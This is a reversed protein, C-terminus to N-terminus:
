LTHLGSHYAVQDTHLNIVLSVVGSTLGTKDSGSASPYSKEPVQDSIPYILVMFREM